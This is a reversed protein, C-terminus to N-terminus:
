KGAMKAVARDLRDGLGTVADAMPDSEGGIMKALNGLAGLKDHLKFKVRTVERKKRTAAITDVTVEAIAAAQERTLASLDVYPLGDTGIRVYDLMNAFALKGTEHLIAGLHVGALEAGELALEKVRAQIDPTNRLRRANHPTSAPNDAYGATVYAEAAPRQAALEQAFKEHKPNRLVPM